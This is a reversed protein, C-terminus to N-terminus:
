TIEVAAIAMIISALMAFVMLQLKMLQLSVIDLDGFAMWECKCSATCLEVTMAAFNLQPNFALAPPNLASIYCGVYDFSTYPYTCPPVSAYDTRRHIHHIDEYAVVFLSPAALFAAVLSKISM